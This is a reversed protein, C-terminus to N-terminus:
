YDLNRAVLGVFTSLSFGIALSITVGPWLTWAGWVLFAIWLSLCWFCTFLEHLRGDKPLRDVTVARLPATITDAIALRTLRYTMGLLLLLVLGTIM